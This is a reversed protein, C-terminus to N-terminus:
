SGDVGEDSKRGTEVWLRWAGLVTGVGMLVFALLAASYALQQARAALFIGTIFTVIL